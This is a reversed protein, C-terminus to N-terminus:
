RAAYQDIRALAVKLSLLRVKQNDTERFCQTTSVLFDEANHRVVWMREPDGIDDRESPKDEVVCVRGDDTVARGKQLLRDEPVRPAADGSM